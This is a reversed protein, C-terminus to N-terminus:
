DDLRKIQKLLCHVADPSLKKRRSKRTDRSSAARENLWQRVLRNMRSNRSTAFPAGEARLRDVIIQVYPVRGLAPPQGRKGKSQQVLAELTVDRRDQVEKDVVAAIFSPVAGRERATNRQRGKRRHFNRKFRQFATEGRTIAVQVAAPLKVDPDSPVSALEKATALAQTDKLESTFRQAANRGAEQEQLIRAEVEEPKM